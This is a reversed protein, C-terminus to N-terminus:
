APNLRLIKHKAANERKRRMVFCVKCQGCRPDKRQGCACWKSREKKIREREQSLERAWEMDGSRHAQVLAIKVEGATM